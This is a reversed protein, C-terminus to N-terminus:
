NHLAAHNQVEVFMRAHAANFIVAEGPVCIFNRLSPTPLSTSLSSSSNDFLSILISPFFESFPHACEIELVDYFRINISTFHATISGIKKEEALELFFVM